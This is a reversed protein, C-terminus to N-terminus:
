SGCMSRGRYFGSPLNGYADRWKRNCKGDTIWYSGFQSNHEGSYRPDKSANLQAQRDASAKVRAQYKASNRIGQSIRQRHLEKNETNISQLLAAMQKGHQRVKDSVTKEAANEKQTIFRCNNRNYPGSDHFRALVYGQGTFGLQSSKLGADDVLELYEEFTLEFPINEAKANVRKNSWKIKLKGDDDLKQELKSKIRTRKSSILALSHNTEKTLGKNWPSRTGEAYGRNPDFAQGPGHMRWVHAGIGRANFLKGCYQCEVENLM